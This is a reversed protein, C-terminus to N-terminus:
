FNDKVIGSARAARWFSLHGQSSRKACTVIMNPMMQVAPPFLVYADKDLIPHFLHNTRVLRFVRLSNTATLYRPNTTAVHRAEGTLEASGHRAGGKAEGEKAEQNRKESKQKRQGYHM